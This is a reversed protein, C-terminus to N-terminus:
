RPTTCAPMFILDLTLSPTTPEIVVTHDGRGPSPGFCGGFPDSGAVVCLEEPEATCDVRAYVQGAGERAVARVYEGARAEVVFTRDPLGPRLMPCRSADPALDDATGATPVTVRAVRLEGVDVPELRVADACAEGGPGAAEIGCTGSCGDGDVLNADDCEEGAALRGDGCPGESRCAADCGDGPAVGGDDCAEIGEVVGDGCATARCAGAACVLSPHCSTAGCPEGLRAVPEIALDAAIADEVPDPHWVLLFYTRGPVLLPSDRTPLRAGCPLPTPSACAERVAFIPAGSATPRGAPALSVVSPEEVAFSFVAHADLPSADCLDSASALGPVPPAYFADASVRHEGRALAGLSVVRVGPGCGLDARSCRAPAPPFRSPECFTGRECATAPSSCDGGASVLPRRQIRLRHVAADSLLDFSEGAAADFVLPEGPACARESAAVSCEAYVALHAAGFATLFDDTNEVIWRERARTQHRLVLDPAAGAACSPSMVDAAVSDVRVELSGDAEVSALDLLSAVPVGPGCEDSPACREEEGVTACVLGPGCGSTPDARSCLAGVDHEEVFRHRLDVRRLTVGEFPPPLPEGVVALTVTESAAMRVTLREGPGLCSYHAPDALGECDRPDVLGALRQGSGTVELELRGDRPARFVVTGGGDVGPCPAFPDAALADSVFSLTETRWGDADPAASGFPLPDMGLSSECARDPAAGCTGIAGPTDPGIGSGGTVTGREYILFNCVADAACEAGSRSCGVDCVSVGRDVCGDPADCDSPADCGRLCVGDVCVGEGPPCVDTGFRPDDCGVVRCTGSSSPGGGCRGLGFPSWCEVGSACADGINPIAVDNPLGPACVGSGYCGFGVPCESPGDGRVTCTPLCLPRAPGGLSDYYPPTACAAGPGCEDSSACARTCIGSTASTFFGICDGGPERGCSGQEVLDFPARRTCFLDSRCEGHYTCEDGVGGRGDRHVCDGTAVDCTVAPDPFITWQEGAGIAVRCDSNSRCGPVCLHDRGDCRYGERCGGRPLPGDPACRDFCAYVGDPREDPSQCPGCSGGGALDSHVCTGGPSHLWELPDPRGAVPITLVREPDCHGSACDADRECSAGITRGGTPPICETPFFAPWGLPAGGDPAGVAGDLRLLAADPVDTIGEDWSCVRGTGSVLCWAGDPCAGGGACGIRCEGAHCVLPSPCDSVSACAEERGDLTCGLRGEADAVCRGGGRMRCDDDEVCATRCRGFACTAGPGCAEASTCPRGLPTAECGAVVMAAALLCRWAPLRPVGGLTRCDRAIALGENAPRGSAPLTSRAM